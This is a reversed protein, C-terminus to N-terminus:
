APQICYTMYAHSIKKAIDAWQFEFTILQLAEASMNERHTKDTMVLTSLGKSIDGSSLNVELGCKYRGILTFPNAAPTVMCPKGCALAEIVSFSMGEWRSTHVFFDSSYIFDYKDRGYLEGAFYVLKELNLSKVLKIIKKKEGRWDPGVLVLGVKDKLNSAQHLGQLLLDLGKQTMDLRGVFTFITRGSWQPLLMLIKNERRELPISKSDIGNPAELIPVKVGYQIIDKTDGVSHVFKAKNIFPRDFLYKFPVKLWPRRKILNKNCAGHPTVTYPVGLKRLLRGLAVNRPVYMSHFHVIDPKLLSIEEILKKPQMWPFFGPSFCKVVVGPICVEKKKSIGYVYVSHGQLALNAALYYVTKEVGNATDPNCRGELIHIIKM